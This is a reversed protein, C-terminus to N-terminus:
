ASHEAPTKANISIAHLEGAAIKEQFPAMVTRHRQVPPQGEFTDSIVTVAFNCDQGDITVTADPIVARIMQTVEEIHM